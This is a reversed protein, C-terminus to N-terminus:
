DDRAGVPAHRSRGAGLSVDSGAEALLWRAAAEPLQRAGVAVIQRQFAALRESSHGDLSRWAAERLRAVHSPWRHQRRVAALKARHLAVPEPAAQAVSRIAEDFAEFTDEVNPDRESWLQFAALEPSAVAGVSYAGGLERITRWLFQGRLHLLSARGPRRLGAAARRSRRRPGRAAPRRPGPGAPAPRRARRHDAGDPRPAAAPPHPRRALHGGAPRGGAPLGGPWRPTGYCWGTRAPPTPSAPRRRSTGRGTGGASCGGYFEALARADTGDLVVQVLRPFREEPEVYVV